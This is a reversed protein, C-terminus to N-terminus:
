VGKNIVNQCHIKLSNHARLGQDRIIFNWHGAVTSKGFSFNDLDRQLVWGLIFISSPNQWACFVFVDANTQLLHGNETVRRILNTKSKVRRCKVQIRVNCLTLDKGGDGHRLLGHHAHTVTFGLHQNISASVVEESMKGMFIPLSAKPLTESLIQEGSKILGRGWQDLRGHYNRYIAQQRALHVLQRTTKANVKFMIPKPAIEGKGEVLMYCKDGKSV